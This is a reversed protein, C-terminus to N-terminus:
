STKQCSLVRSGGEAVRAEWEERTPLTDFPLNVREFAGTPVSPLPTTEGVLLRQVEESLAKGHAKAYALRTNFVEEQGDPM